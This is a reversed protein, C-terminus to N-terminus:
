KKNMIMQYTADREMGIATIGAAEKQEIVSSIVAVLSSIEGGLSDGNEEAFKQYDQLQFLIEKLFIMQAPHTEFKHNLRKLEAKQIDNKDARRVLTALRFADEIIGKSNEMEIGIVVSVIHDVSGKAFAEIQSDFYKVAPKHPAFTREQSKRMKEAVISSDRSSTVDAALAIKHYNEDLGIAEPDEIDFELIFDVGNIIDDYETTKSLFSEHGFWDNLEGHEAVIREMASSITKSFESSKKEAASHYDGFRSKFKEVLIKDKEIEQPSYVVAFDDESLCVQPELYEALAKAQSAVREDHEAASLRELFEM